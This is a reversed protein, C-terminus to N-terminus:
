IRELAPSGSVPVAAESRVRANGVLRSAPLGAAAALGIMWAAGILMQKMPVGLQFLWGMLAPSAATTFVVLAAAVSRVRGVNGAGYLEAWVASAISGSAGATIGALVMYLFAVFPLNGTVLIILGGALPLMYLPLLRTATFRDIIPGIALSSLGRTVAFAAFAAAMWEFAWGKSQALVAQYLFLGTLVFPLVLVSPLVLYIRRDRWLLRRDLDAVGAADSPDETRDSSVQDRLLRLVVPLLVFGAILAVLLWVGRWPILRLLLATVIPLVAEGLPYGIGAVGLARGRNFGFERAMVTQSIHGLLGQGLLRLGLLGAAFMWVNVSVAVVLASLALGAVTARTYRRLDAGDISGGVFPLLFASLLTAAGYVLGFEGKGMQFAAQFQLLFLSIFFTQGFSTSLATMLGFYLLSRNARFFRIYNM